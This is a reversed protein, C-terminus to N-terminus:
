VSEPKVRTFVATGYRLDPCVSVANVVTRLMTTMGDFVRVVDLSGVVVVSDGRKVCDAANDALFGACRVEIELPLLEGRGPSLLPFCVYDGKDKPDAKVYGSLRVDRMSM